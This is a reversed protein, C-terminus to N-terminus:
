YYKWFIKLRSFPGTNTYISRHLSMKAIYCIFDVEVFKGVDFNSLETWKNNIEERENTSRMKALSIGLESCMSNLSKHIRKDWHIQAKRFFSDYQSMEKKKSKMWRFINNKLEAELGSERMAKLLTEKFDDLKVNPTTVLKQFPYIEITQCSYQM